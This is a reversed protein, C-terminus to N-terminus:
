SGLPFEIGALSTFFNEDGGNGLVEVQGNPFIAIQSQGAAAENFAEFWLRHTPRAGKPLVGIISPIPLSQNARDIAGTLYVVGNSVTYEANGDGTFGAKAADRWQNRLSLAHWTIKIVPARGVAVSAAYGVGGGLSLTLATLSIIIAPSQRIISRFRSM